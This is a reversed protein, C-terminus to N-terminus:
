AGFQSLHHDLHKWMLMDWQEPTMKGFFPHPDKSIKEPGANYFREVISILKKKEQEFNRNDSIVFRKDTPMDKRFPKTNALQKKAIAGFLYSFFTRGLKKDGLASEFPVCCHALMQSVNMKGWQAPTEPTLKGIRKLVTKNDEIKFLSSM